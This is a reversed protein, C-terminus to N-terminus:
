NTAGHDSHDTEKVEDEVSEEVIFVVPVEGARDFVLTADLTDGVALDGPTLGMIMVHLGGPEFSVESGAPIEIADLHIMRAIGESEQTEHMMSRYSETRIDILTDDAAGNNSILMYGAAARAKDFAKFIVPHDVTLDGSKFEHALSPSALVVFLAILRFM